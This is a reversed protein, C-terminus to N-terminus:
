AYQQQLVGDHDSAAREARATVSEDVLELRLEALRDDRHTNRM